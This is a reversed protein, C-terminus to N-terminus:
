HFTVLTSSSRAAARSCDNQLWEFIIDAAEILYIHILDRSLLAVTEPSTLLTILESRDGDSTSAHCPHIHQLIKAARALLDALEQESMRDLALATRVLEWVFDSTGVM